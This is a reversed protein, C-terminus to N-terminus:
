LGMRSLLKKSANMADEQPVSKSEALAQTHENSIAGDSLTVIGYSALKLAAEPTCWRESLQLKAHENLTHNKAHLNSWEKRVHEADRQIRNTYLSLPTRDLDSQFVEGCIRCGTYPRSQDFKLHDDKNGILMGTLYLHQKM